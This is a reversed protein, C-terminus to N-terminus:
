VCGMASINLGTVACHASGYSAESLSSCGRRRRPTATSAYSTAGRWGRSRPSARPRASLGPCTQNTPKCQQDEKQGVAARVPNEPGSDKGGGDRANGGIPFRYRRKKSASVQRMGLRGVKWSLVWIRINSVSSRRSVKHPSIGRLLPFLPFSPLLGNLVLWKDRGRRQSPNPLFPFSYSTM